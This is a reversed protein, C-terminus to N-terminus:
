ETPSSQRRTRVHLGNSVTAEASGQAKVPIGNIMEHTRWVEVREGRGLSVFHARMRPIMLADTNMKVGWGSGRGGCLGEGGGGGGGSSGRSRLASASFTM